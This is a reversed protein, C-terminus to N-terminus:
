PAEPRCLVTFTTLVRSALQGRSYYTIDGALLAPRSEETPQHLVPISLRQLCANGRNDCFDDMKLAKYM